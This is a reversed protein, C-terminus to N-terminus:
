FDIKQRLTISVNCFKSLTSQFRIKSLMGFKLDVSSFVSFSISLDTAYPQYSYGRFIFIKVDFFSKLNEKETLSWRIVLFNYHLSKMFVLYDCLTWYIYKDTLTYRFVTKISSGEKADIAELRPRFQKMAKHIQTLDTACEDWVDCIRRKM